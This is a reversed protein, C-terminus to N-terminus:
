NNCIKDKAPCKSRGEPHYNGGCFYCKRCFKQAASIRKSHENINRLSPNTTAASAFKPTPNDAYYASQKHARELM